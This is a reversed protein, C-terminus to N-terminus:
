SAIRFRFALAAIGLFVGAKPLVAVAPALPQDPILIQPADSFNSALLPFFFHAVVPPTQGLRLHEPDFRDKAPLDRRPLKLPLRRLEQDSAGCQVSHRKQSHGVAICGSGNELKVQVFVARM